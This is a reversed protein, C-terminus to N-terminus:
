IMISACRGCDKRHVFCEDHRTTWGRRKLTLTETNYEHKGSQIALPQAQILGAALQRLSRLRRQERKKDRVAYDTM